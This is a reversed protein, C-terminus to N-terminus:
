QPKYLLYPLQQAPNASSIAPITGNLDLSSPTPLGLMNPNGNISYQDHKTSTKLAGPNTPPTAGDYQSLTSGNQTLQILLGM